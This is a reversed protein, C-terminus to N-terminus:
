TKLIFPVRTLFAAIYKVAQGLLGRCTDARLPAGARHDCPGFEQINWGIDQRSQRSKYVWGWTGLGHQRM